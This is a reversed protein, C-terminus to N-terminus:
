SRASRAPPENKLGRLAGAAARLWVEDHLQNRLCTPQRTLRQPRLPAGALESDCEAIKGRGEGCHGGLSVQGRGPCSKLVMAADPVQHSPYLDFVKFVVALVVGGGLPLACYRAPLMVALSHAEQLQDELLHHDVVLYHICQWVSGSTSTSTSVTVTITEACVDFSSTILFFNSFASLWSPLSSSFTLQTMANHVKAIQKQLFTHKHELVRLSCPSRLAPLAWRRCRGALVGGVLLLHASSLQASSYYICETKYETLVERQSVPPSRRPPPSQCRRPPAAQM